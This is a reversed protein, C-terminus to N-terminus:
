RVLMMMISEGTDGQLLVKISKENGLDRVRVGNCVYVPGLSM